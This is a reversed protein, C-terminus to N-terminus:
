IGTPGQRDRAAVAATAVTRALSTVAHAGSTATFHRVARNAAGGAKKRRYLSARYSSTTKVLANLMAADATRNILEVLPLREFERGKGDITIALISSVVNALWAVTWRHPM